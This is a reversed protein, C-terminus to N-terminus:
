WNVKGRNQKKEGKFKKAKIRAEIASKKPKTAKRIKKKEFAKSLADYFKKIAQEKNQIQSRKEQSLFMIKGESDIKNGWKELLTQMEEETLFQSKEIHFFLQVKSNVKNVNQGGPGSSRSAQFELEANFVQFKIKQSISM